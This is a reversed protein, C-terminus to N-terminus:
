LYLHAQLMLTKTTTDSTRDHDLYYTANVNWHTRPLFVAGFGLRFLDSTRTGGGVLAQPSVKLWLGRVVEVSTENILVFSPDSADQFIADGQNWITVGPRPAFGLAVGGAGQRGSLRSASRFLGSGVVVTRPTLDIQARGTATFSQRGDDDIISEARGPGVSAQILYRETTYSAEAAFVQDDQAVGLYERNFSTHDAFKIGYAPVFRGARIGFGQDPLRGAWYEHSEIKGGNEQPVRGVEGYGVWNGVKVAANVDATMWLNRSMKFGGPFWFQLRSPRLDIGLQLPGLAEGLAGFLFAEEGPPASEDHSAVPKVFTSLEVHSLSRGYTSLLGGGTPSVHCSTCRPYQRSLLHPEASATGISFVVGLVALGLRELRRM